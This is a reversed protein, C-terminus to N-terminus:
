QPSQPPRGARDIDALVARAQRVNMELIDRSYKRPERRYRAKGVESTFASAPIADEGPPLFKLMEEFAAVTYAVADRLKYRESKPTRLLQLGASESIRFAVEAFEGPDIIESPQSGGFAPPPPPIEGAMRFAFRRATGCQRCAGEYVAVIDDGRQELRHQRDFDGSGCECPHLDMYLHAEFSSRATLM